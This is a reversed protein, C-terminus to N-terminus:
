QKKAHMKKRVQNGRFISQMKVVLRVMEGTQVYSELQGDDTRLHEDNDFTRPEVDEELGANRGSSCERSNAEELIQRQDKEQQM